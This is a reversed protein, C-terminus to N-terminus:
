AKISARPLSRYPSSRHPEELKRASIADVFLRHARGYLPSVERKGPFANPPGDHNVDRGILGLKCSYLLLEVFGNVEDSLCERGM